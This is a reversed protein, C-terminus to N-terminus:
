RSTPLSSNMETLVTSVWTDDTSRFSCSDLRWSSVRQACSRRSIQAREGGRQTVQAARHARGPQLRHGPTRHDEAAHVPVAEVDRPLPVDDQHRTPGLQTGVGRVHHGRPDPHEARAREVVDAGRKRPGDHADGARGAGCALENGDARRLVPEHDVEAGAGAPVGGTDEVRHGPV